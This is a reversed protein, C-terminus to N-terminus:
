LPIFGVPFDYVVSKTGGEKIPFPTLPNPRVLRVKAEFRFYYKYYTNHKFKNEGLV